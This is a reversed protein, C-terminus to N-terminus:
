KPKVLVAILGGALVGGLMCYAVLIRGWGVPSLLLFTDALSIPSPQAWHILVPAGLGLVLTVAVWKWYETALFDPKRRALVVVGVLAGIGLLAATFVYADAYFDV